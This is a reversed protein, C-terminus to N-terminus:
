ELDFDGGMQAEYIERYQSCGAILRDHTGFAVTKGNELVIILDAHM